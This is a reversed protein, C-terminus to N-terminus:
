RSATSGPLMLDLVISTPRASPAAALAELRGGRRQRRLRGARLYRSVVEAITPEDDVM